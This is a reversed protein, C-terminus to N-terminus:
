ISRYYFISVNYYEPFFSIFGPTGMNNLLNVKFLFNEKVSLFSKEGSVLVLRRALLHYVSGFYSFMLCSSLSHTLIISSVGFKSFTQDLLLFLLGINIHCIRSYSIIKKTDVCLLGTVAGLVGGM